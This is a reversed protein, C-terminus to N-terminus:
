PNRARIYAFKPSFLPFGGSRSPWCARGSNSGPVERRGTRLTVATGSTPRPFFHLTFPWINNTVDVCRKLYSPLLLKRAITRINDVTNIFEILAHRSGALNLSCDEPNHIVLPAVTSRYHSTKQDSPLMKEKWELKM